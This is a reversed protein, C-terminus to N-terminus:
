SFISLVVVRNFHSYDQFLSLATLGHGGHRPGNRTWRFSVETRLDLGQLCLYTLADEDPWNEFTVPLEGRGYSPPGQFENVASSCRDM